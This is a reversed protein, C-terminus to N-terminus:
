IPNIIQTFKQTLENIRFALLPLHEVIQKKGGLPDKDQYVVKYFLVV